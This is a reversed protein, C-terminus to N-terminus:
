NFMGCPYNQYSFLTYLKQYSNPHIKNGQIIESASASTELQESLCIETRTMDRFLLKSNSYGFTDLSLDNMIFFRSALVFIYRRHCGYERKLVLPLSESLSERNVEILTLLTQGLKNTSLLISHTVYNATVGNTLIERLADDKMYKALEM